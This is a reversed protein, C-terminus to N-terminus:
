ETGLNHQHKIHNSNPYAQLNFDLTRIITVITSSTRKFKLAIISLVVMSNSKTLLFIIFEQSYTLASSKTAHIQDNM